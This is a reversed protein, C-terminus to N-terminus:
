KTLYVQYFEMKYGGVASGEQTVKMHAAWETTALNGDKLLYEVYGNILVDHPAIEAVNEVVHHRKAVKEWMTQRLQTIEDHGKVRALGMILPSEPTFYDLYADPTSPPTDSAKYFSTVFEKFEAQIGASYNTM